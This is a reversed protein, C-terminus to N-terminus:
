LSIRSASLIGQITDVRRGGYIQADDRREQDRREPASSYRDGPRRNTNSYDFPRRAEIRADQLANLFSREQDQQSVQIGLSMLRNIRDIERQIADMGNQTESLQRRVEDSFQLSTTRVTRQREPGFNDDQTTAGRGGQEPRVPPANAAAIKAQRLEEVATRYQRIVDIGAKLSQIYDLEAQSAASVAGASQSREQNLAQTGGAAAMAAQGAAEHAAVLERSRAAFEQASIAGTNFQRALEALQADLAATAASYKSAANEGQILSANANDTAGSLINEADAAQGASNALGDTASAASSLSDSAGAAAGATQNLADSVGTQVAKLREMVANYQEISIRGDAYAQNVANMVGAVSGLNGSVQGAIGASSLLQRALEGVAAEAQRASIAGVNLQREIEVWSSVLSSTAAGMRGAANAAGNVAKSLGNMAQVAQLSLANGAQLHAQFQQQAQNFQQQTLSMSAIAQQYQGASIGGQIVAQTLAQLMQGAQQGSLNLANLREALASFIQPDAGERLSSFAVRLQDIGPAARSLIDSFAEMGIRGAQVGEVLASFSLNNLDGGLRDIADATEIFRAGIESFAQDIQAFREPLAELPGVSMTSFAEGLATFTVRAKEAMAALAAGFAKVRDSAEALQEGIQKGFQFSIGAAALNRLETLEATLARVSTVKDGLGALAGSAARVGKALAAMGAAAAAIKALDAAMRVVQPNRSVFDNVARTLETLSRAAASVDGLLQEGITQSLNSVAQKLRDVDKGVTQMRKQFERSVAGETSQRVSSLAGRLTDLSNVLANVDDQYEMGFLRTATIARMEPPLQRLRELFDVLAADADKRINDALQRAGLGMDALAEQFKKGQAQATQLKTLLANVATAAVEPPKGLALFSAALAATEEKALGFTKGAAAVRQVVNVIDQERAAMSNGLINIADALERVKTVPIGLANSLTGIATAISESSADFAVSMESALKVFAGLEQRPVGLQGGVAALRALEVSSIGTAEAMDRLENKLGAMAEASLDTTKAVEAMAAEMELADSVVNGIGAGAAVAAIASRMKLFQEAMGGASRKARELEGRMRRIAKADFAGGSAKKVKLFDEVLRRTTKDLKDAQIKGKELDSALREIGGIDVDRASLREISRSLDKLEGLADAADGEIVLKLNLDGAM